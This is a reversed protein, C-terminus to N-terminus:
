AISGSLFQEISVGTEPISLDIKAKLSEPNEYQVVQTASNELYQQALQFAKSLLKDQESM